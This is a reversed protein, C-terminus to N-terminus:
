SPVRAMQQVRVLLRSQDRLNHHGAEKCALTRWGGWHPMVDSLLLASLHVLGADVMALVMHLRLLSEQQRLLEYM